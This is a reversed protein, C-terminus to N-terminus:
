MRVSGVESDEGEGQRVFGTHQGRLCHHGCIFESLFTQSTSFPVCLLGAGLDGLQLDEEAVGWPTRSIIASMDKQSTAKPDMSNLM